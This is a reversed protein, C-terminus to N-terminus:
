NIKVGTIRKIADEVDEYDNTIFWKKFEKGIREREEEVAQTIAQSLITIAEYAYKKGLNKDRLEEGDEGDQFANNFLVELKSKADEQAQEIIQKTDM